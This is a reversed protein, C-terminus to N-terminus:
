KAQGTINVLEELEFIEYTPIIKTVNPKRHPNYWCTDIGYNNGGLVDSTLSDGVMLVRSKDTLDLKAFAYDFIGKDPKQIGADESVIIQEFKDRLVSLTIRSAQVEKFGNTIVALRCDALQGCVEAAGALLHSEAGLYGLYIRNFEEGNFPLQHTLFLRRFREAGLENLTMKGQELEDWLVKSIEKYSASYDNVGESLKFDVFANHLARRESERFDFLTDDVDFLIVDYKM